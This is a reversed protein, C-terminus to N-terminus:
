LRFIVKAIVLRCSEPLHSSLASAVFVNHIEMNKLEEIRELAGEAGRNVRVISELSLLYWVSFPFRTRRANLM